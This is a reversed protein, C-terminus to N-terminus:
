RAHYKRVGRRPMPSDSNTPTARANEDKRQRMEDIDERRREMAFVFAATLGVIPIAIFLSIFIDGTM